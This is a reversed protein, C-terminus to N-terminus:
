EERELCMSSVAEEARAKQKRKKRLYGRYLRNRGGHGETVLGREVGAGLDRSNSRAFRGLRRLRRDEGLRARKSIMGREASQAVAGPLRGRTLNALADVLGELGAVAVEYTGFRARM